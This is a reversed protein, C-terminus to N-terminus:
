VAPAAGVCDAGEPSDVEFAKFGFCGPDGAGSSDVRCFEPAVRTLESHVGRTVTDVPSGHRCAGAIRPSRHLEVGSAVIGRAHM